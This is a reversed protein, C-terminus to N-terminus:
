GKLDKLRERRASITSALTLIVLATWSALALMAIMGISDSRRTAALAVYAAACPVIGLSAKWRAAALLLHIHLFVGGLPAAALTMARVLAVEYTSPRQGTLGHWLLPGFVWLGAVALLILGTTYTAARRWIPRIDLGTATGAAIRPFAALAVPMSLFVTARAILAARAFVGAAAASLGIKSVVVDAHMLVGFALLSPVAALFGRLDAMASEDARSAALPRAPEFRRRVRSWGFWGIAVSCGAAIVHALLVVEATASRGFVGVVSLACRTVAFAQASLTFWGFAEAGQLLGAIWPVYMGTAMMAAALPIGHPASLSLGQSLASASAFGGAILMLAVLALGGAWRAATRSLDSTGAGTAAKRAIQAALAVRLAELPYLLTLAAGSLASLIGYQGHDLGRMMAWQYLLNAAHGIPATALLLLSQRRLADARIWRAIRQLPPIPKM